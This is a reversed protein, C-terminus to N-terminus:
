HGSKSSHRDNKYKFLTSDLGYGKQLVSQLLCYITIVSVILLSVVAMSFTSFDSDAESLIFILLFILSIVYYSTPSSWYSTTSMCSFPRKSLVPSSSYGQLVVISIGECLSVSKQRSFYGISCHSPVSISLSPKPM